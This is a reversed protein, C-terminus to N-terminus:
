GDFREPLLRSCDEAIMQGARASKSRLDPIIIALRSKIAERFEWIQTTKQVLQTPDIQNIDLVWDSMEVM